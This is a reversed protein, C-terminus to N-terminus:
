ISPYLKQIQKVSSIIMEKLIEINIDSLKKIYVCGKGAKYKGFKLLLEEKNKFSTSLYLSIADKRPSFAALPADGEHGSDYKYHYNGFGIIGPGWMKPEFGTQQEIIKILEFSDNRKVEDDVTNIFDTVSNETQTTKNKAM